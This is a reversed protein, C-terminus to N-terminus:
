IEREWPLGTRGRINDCDMRFPAALVDEVRGLSVANLARMYKYMVQGESLVYVRMDSNTYYRRAGAPLLTTGASGPAFLRPCMRELKDFVADVEPAVQQQRKRMPQALRELGCLWFGRQADQSIPPDTRRTGMRTLGSSRLFRCRSSPQIRLGHAGLIDDLADVLEAPPREGGGEGPLSPFLLHMDGGAALFAKTRVGDPSTDDAGRQSALNIWRSDAHFRRAIISYSISSLTIYTAPVAQLDEPVDVAFAEGHQWPVLGWSDWPANEHVLFLQLGIMGALMTLRLERTVPLLWLFAVCLPGALLLVATFYRGNGSTALWPVFAAACFALLTFAARGSSQRRRMVILLLLLLLVFVFRFDPAVIEVYVGGDPAAMAIPRMVADRWTDPMFRIM